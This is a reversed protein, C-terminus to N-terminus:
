AKDEAAYAAEAQEKSSFRKKSGLARCVWKGSGQQYFLPRDTRERKRSNGTAQTQCKKKPCPNQVRVTLIRKLENVDMVAEDGDSYRVEYLGKRDDFATVIGTFYGHGVFLNRV